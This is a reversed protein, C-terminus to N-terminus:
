SAPHQAKPVAILFRAETVTWPPPSPGLLSLRISTLRVPEFRIVLWGKRAAYIEEVRRLLLEEGDPTRGHADLAGPGEGFEPAYFIAVGRLVLEPDSQLELWDRARQPRETSWRTSLSSDLVLSASDANPLASAHLPKIWTPDKLAEVIDPVRQHLHRVYSSDPWRARLAEVHQSAEDLRDARMLLDAVRFAAFRHWPHQRWEERWLELAALTLGESDASVARRTLTDGALTSLAGTVLQSDGLTQLREPFVEVPPRDDWMVPNGRAAIVSVLAGWATLVVAANRLFAGAPGMTAVALIWWPLADTMLRPGFSYGGWWSFWSGYLALTMGFGALGAIELIRLRAEKPRPARILAAALLLAVVPEYWLVGRSPSAVLWFMSDLWALPAHISLGHVQSIYPGVVSGYIELHYAMLPVAVALASWLATTSARRYFLVALLFVLVISLLFSPRSVVAMTMCVGLAILRRRESTERDLLRELAGLLWLEAAGHQWLASASTSWHTTGLGYALALLHPSFPPDLKKIIQLALWVSALAILIASVIALRETLAPRPLPSFSAPLFVPWALFAAGIPYHSRLGQPSTYLFYPVGHELLEPYDDLATGRGSAISLATYGTPTVDFSYARHYSLGYAAFCALIVWADLNPRFRPVFRALVLWAVVAAVAPRVWRTSRIRLGLVTFDIGPTYLSYILIASAVVLVAGFFLIAARRRTSTDGM